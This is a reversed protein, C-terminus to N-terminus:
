EVDLPRWRRKLSLISQTHQCQRVAAVYRHVDPSLWEAVFLQSEGSTKQKLNSFTQSVEFM